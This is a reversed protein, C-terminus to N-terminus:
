LTIPGVETIMKDASCMPGQTVISPDLGDEEQDNIEDDCLDPGCNEHYLGLNHGFEHGIAGISTKKILQL